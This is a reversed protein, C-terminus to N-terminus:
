LSICLRLSGMVGRNFEWSLDSGVPGQVVQTRYRGFTGWWRQAQGCPGQWATRFTGQVCPAGEGVEHHGRKFHGEQTVGITQESRTGDRLHEWDGSM